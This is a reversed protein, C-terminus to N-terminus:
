NKKKSITFMIKETGEFNESKKEVEFNSILEYDCLVHKKYYLIPTDSIKKFIEEFDIVEDMRNIHELIVCLTYKHIVGAFSMQILDNLYFKFIKSKQFYKTIDDLATKIMLDQVECPAYLNKVGQKRLWFILDSSGGAGINCSVTIVFQPNIFRIAKYDYDNKAHPWFLLVISNENNEFESACEHFNKKIVVFNKTSELMCVPDILVFEIDESCKEKIKTELEGSGCGISFIKKINQQNNITNSVEDIIKKSGIVNLGKSLNNNNETKFDEKDSSLFLRIFDLKQNESLSM